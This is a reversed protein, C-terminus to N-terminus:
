PQLSEEMLGAPDCNEPNRWVSFLLALLFIFILIYSSSSSVPLSMACFRLIGKCPVVLADESLLPDLLTRENRSYFVNTKKVLLLLCFM